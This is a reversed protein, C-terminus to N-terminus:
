QLASITNMLDAAAFPKQLFAHIANRSFGKRADEEPYGSAIVIKMSPYREALVPVIEDGGMVPMALDLLIITPLMPTQALVELAHKGNRGELVECGHMRLTVAIWKRVMEEDDVVMITSAKREEITVVPLVVKPEPEKESAPLCVRFTTGLTPASRVQIFGRSTRVIGDVAALGLGRGTFKTSFFPDFIRAMTADDMGSGNDKVELWVYRGPTIEERRSLGAAEESTIEASGTSIEVQGASKLPIAEGANSVLNMLIQEIQTPDAELLPLDQQLNFNLSVLKPVSTMLLQKAGAILANLDVTRAVGQSKGAYALLQKTLDAARESAALIAESYECTSCVALASSANGMIVTLLNNFDHAVGGALLSISKLKQAHRLREETRARETIDTHIAAFQGAGPSYAIVEYHRGTGSGFRNLRMPAGTSAVRSFDGVWPEWEAEPFLERYTRGIINRRPQGLMSEMAPNIDLFRWDIPEGAADLVMECVTFGEQMSEFLARYRQESKRLAAETAMRERLDERLSAEAQAKSLLAGRLAGVLVSILAGVVVFLALGGTAQPNAIALSHRPALFFWTITLASLATAAFGASRGAFRAALM